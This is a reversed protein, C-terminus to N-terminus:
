ARIGRARRERSKRRAKMRQQCRSTCFVQDRRGPTFRRACCRCDMDAVPPTHRKKAAREERCSATCFVQNQIPTFEAGCEPCVRPAAPPADLVADRCAGCLLGALGGLRWLAHLPREAHCRDCTGM